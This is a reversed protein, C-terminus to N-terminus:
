MKFGPRSRALAANMASVTLLLFVINRAANSAFGTGLLYAPPANAAKM